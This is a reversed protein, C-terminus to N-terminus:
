DEGKRRKHRAFVSALASSMLGNRKWHFNNFRKAMKRTSTNVDSVSEGLDAAAQVVPDITKMKVNVDALM